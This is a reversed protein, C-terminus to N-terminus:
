FLTIVLVKAGEAFAENLDTDNELLLDLLQPEWELMMGVIKNAHKPQTTICKAYLTNGYAEKNM